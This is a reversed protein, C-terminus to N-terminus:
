CKNRLDSEDDRVFDAFLRGWYFRAARAEVNDPDDPEVHRAIEKLTEANNRDLVSLAAAQNLIKRRVITQWLRKKM